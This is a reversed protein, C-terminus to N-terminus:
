QFSEGLLGRVLEGLVGSFLQKAQPMSISLAESIAEEYPTLLNTLEIEPHVRHFDVAISL